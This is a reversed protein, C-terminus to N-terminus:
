PSPDRFVGYRFGAYSVFMAILSAVVVAAIAHTQPRILLVVVFIVYNVLQAMWSVAAFQLFEAVTPSHRYAFTITRNILWSVVMAVAISFPRAIVASLSLSWTLFQLVAIDTILALVGALVFGGYHRLYSPARSTRARM